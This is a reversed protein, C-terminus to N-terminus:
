YESASGFRNRIEEVHDPSIDTVLVGNEDRDCVLSDGWPDVIMSNGYTRRGSAHVGWQAPAVVYAHNEIARARLLIEWHDRGTTYAFASPVAFWIAGKSVLKRYLQPFRVDYCVTLGAVGAPTSHVVLQDGPTTYSSEAYREGNSLVIDFLNIKDYRAAQRGQEDILYSTNRVMEPLESKVFVGAALIWMQNEIALQSLFGVIPGEGDAPEACGLRQDHDKPMMAFCEPLVALVASQKKAEKVLESTLRLNQEVDDSSNMQIAAVRPM